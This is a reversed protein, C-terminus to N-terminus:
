RSSSLTQHQYSKNIKTEITLLLIFNEFLNIIGVDVKCNNFKERLAALSQAVSVLAIHLCSLAKLQNKNTLAFM